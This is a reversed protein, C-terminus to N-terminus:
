VLGSGKGGLAARLARATDAWTPLPRSGAEAALRARLTDDTLVSRLAAKWAARDGCAVPLCGGGAANELLPPLDSCVSPVGMWLSELLPLGCGEALTPLVSARATAYLRAMEADGVAGHGRLEPRKRALTRIRAALERGFVPNVRGVLDLGFRLGETWLEECVDLLFAQNKRPEIIGVCLLSPLRSAPLRSDPAPSPSRRRGPMFDAGLQLVEVPPISPAGQWRWFGILEERSAESNALILDFGALLKLYGPHRAVSRPWTIHPFKLPIADSFIAAARFRRRSLFSGFGPREAESFLESTLFWDGEGAANAAEPWTVPSASAGLEAGLRTNLRMLGSAHGAAGSKTVDFFIV